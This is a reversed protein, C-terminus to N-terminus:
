PAPSWQVGDVTVTGREVQIAEDRFSHVGPLSALVDNGRVVTLTHVVTTSAHGQGTYHVSAEIREMRIECDDPLLLREMPSNSLVRITRM